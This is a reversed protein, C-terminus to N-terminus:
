WSQLPLHRTHQLLAAHWANWDRERLVGFVVLAHPEISVDLFPPTRASTGFTPLKPWVNAFAADLQLGSWDFFYSAEIRVFPEITRGSLEELLSRCADPVRETPVSALGLREFVIDEIRFREDDSVFHFDLLETPTVSVEPERFKLRSPQDRPRVSRVRGDSAFEVDVVEGEIFRDVTAVNADFARTGHTPHTLEGRALESSWRLIRWTM